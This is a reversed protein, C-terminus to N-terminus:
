DEPLEDITDDWDETGVEKMMRETAAKMATLGSVQELYDVGQRLVRMVFAEKEKEYAELVAPSCASCYRFAEGRLKMTSFQGIWGRIMHPMAGMGSDNEHGDDDAPCEQRLPQQLLNVLLEVACASAQYALGPRTV